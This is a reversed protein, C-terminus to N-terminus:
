ARAGVSEAVRELLEAVTKFPGLSNELLTRADPSIVLAANVREVLETVTDFTGVIQALAEKAKDSVVLDAGGTADWKEHLERAEDVTLRLTRIVEREPRGQDFLEFARATVEGSHREAIAPRNLRNALKNLEEPNYVLMLHERGRGDPRYARLPHLLGKREYNALTQLSCSLRDSAEYRSMWDRTEPIISDKNLPREQLEKRPTVVPKLM